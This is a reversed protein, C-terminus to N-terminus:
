NDLKLVCGVSKINKYISTGFKIGALVSKKSLVKKDLEVNKLSSLLFKNKSKGDLLGDVMLDKSARILRNISVLKKRDSGLAISNMRVTISRSSLRTIRKQILEYNTSLRSKLDNLHSSVAFKTKENRISFGKNKIEVFDVISCDEITKSSIIDGRLSNFLKSGTIVSLDNLTNIHEQELPVKILVVDLTGRAKNAKLTEVIDPHCDRCFIIGPIKKTSFGTLIQHISAVTPINGDVIFIGVNNRKWGNFHEFLNIDLPLDFFSSNNVLAVNKESSSSNHIDVYISSNSGASKFVEYIFESNEEDHDNLFRRLEKENGYSAKDNIYKELSNVVEEVKEIPLNSKYCQLLVGLAVDGGFASLKESKGLGDLVIRNMFTHEELNEGLLSLFDTYSNTTSHNNKTLTAFNKIKSRLLLQFFKNYNSVFEQKDIIKVNNM